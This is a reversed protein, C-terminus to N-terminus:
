PPEFAETVSFTEAAEVEFATVFEVGVISPLLTVKVAVTVALLGGPEPVGVPPVTAQDTLPDAPIM